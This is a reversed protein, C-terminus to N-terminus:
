FNLNSSFLLQKIFNLYAGFHALHVNISVCILASKRLNNSPQAMNSFKKLGTAFGKRYLFSNLENQWVALNDVRSNSKM